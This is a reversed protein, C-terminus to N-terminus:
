NETEPTKVAEIWGAAIAELDPCVITLVGDDVTVYYPLSCSGYRDTIRTLIQNNPPFCGWLHVERPNDITWDVLTRAVKLAQSSTKYLRSGPEFVEGNPLYLAKIRWWDLDDECDIDDEDIVVEVFGSRYEELIGQRYLQFNGYNM